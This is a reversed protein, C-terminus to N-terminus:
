AVEFRIEIKNNTIGKYYKSISLFM